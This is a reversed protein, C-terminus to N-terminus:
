NGPGGGQESFTLTEAYIEITEFPDGELPKTQSLWKILSNTLNTTSVVKDGDMWQVMIPFPKRMADVTNCAARIQAADTLKFTMTCLKPRHAKFGGLLEPDDEKPKGYVCEVGLNEITRPEPVPKGDFTVVVNHTRRAPRKQTQNSM